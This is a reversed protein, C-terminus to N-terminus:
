MHFLAAHREVHQTVAEVYCWGTLLADHHLITRRAAPLSSDSPASHKRCRECAADTESRLESPVPVRASLTPPDKLTKLDSQIHTCYSVAEAHLSETDRMLRKLDQLFRKKVELWHPFAGGILKLSFSLLLLLLGPRTPCILLEM